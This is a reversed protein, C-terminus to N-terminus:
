NCQAWVKGTKIQSITVASVGFKKALIKGTAGSKLLKKIEIVQAENLKAQPNRSGLKPDRILHTRNRKKIDQANMWRNGLYLHSPNVCKRNDCKHLVCRPDKDSIIGSMWMMWRHARWTKGNSHFKGYGTHRQVEQFDWCGNNKRVRSFFRAKQKEMAPDLTLSEIPVSEVKM